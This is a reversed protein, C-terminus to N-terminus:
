IWEGAKWLTLVLKQYEEMYSFLEGIEKNEKICEMIDHIYEEQDGEYYEVGLEGDPNYGFKDMYQKKADLLEKTDRGEWM